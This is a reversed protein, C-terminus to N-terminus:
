VGPLQFIRTSCANLITVTDSHQHDIPNRQRIILFQRLRRPASMDDGVSRAAYGDAMPNDDTGIAPAIALQEKVLQHVYRLTFSTATQLGKNPLVKGVTLGAGVEGDARKFIFRAAQGAFDGGFYLGMGPIGPCRGDFGGFFPNIRYSGAREGEGGRTTHDMDRSGPESWEGHRVQALKVM